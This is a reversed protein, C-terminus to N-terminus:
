YKSLYYKAGGIIAIVSIIVVVGLMMWFQRMKVEQHRETIFYSYSIYATGNPIADNSHANDSNDVLLYMYPYDSDKEWRFSTRNVRERSFEAKFSENEQYKQFEDSRLIYVDVGQESTVNIEVTIRDYEKFPPIYDPSAIAARWHDDPEISTSGDNVIDGEVMPLFGFLTFQLIIIITLIRHQSILHKPQM